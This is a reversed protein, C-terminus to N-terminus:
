PVCIQVRCRRMVITDLARSSNMKFNPAVSEQHRAFATCPWSRRKGHRTRSTREICRKSADALGHTRPARARQARSSDDQFESKRKGSTSRLGYLAILAKQRTKARSSREIRRESADGQACGKAGRAQRFLSVEPVLVATQGSDPSRSNATETTTRTPANTYRQHTPITTLNTQTIRADSCGHARTRGHTDRRAHTEPERSGRHLCTYATSAQLM